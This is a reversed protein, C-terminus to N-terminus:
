INQTETIQWLYEVPSADILLWQRVKDASVVLIHGSIWEATKLKFKVSLEHWTKTQSGWVSVYTLMKTITKTQKTLLSINRVLNNKARFVFKIQGGDINLNHVCCFLYVPSGAANEQVHLPIDARLRIVMAFCISCFLYVFLCFHAPTSPLTCALEARLMWSMDSPLISVQTWRALLLHLQSTVRSVVKTQDTNEQTPFLRWNIREVSLVFRLLVLVIVCVPDCKSQCFFSICEHYDNTYCIVYMCMAYM